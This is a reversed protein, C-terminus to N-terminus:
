VSGEWFSTLHQRVLEYAMYARYEAGARIDSIPRVSERALAAAQEILEPTLRRGRLLEETRTIRLPTPAVSGLSVRVDSIAGSADSCLAVVGSVVSIALANRRGVKFFAQYDWSRKPIRIEAILEGQRLRTQRPGVVFNQLPVLREGERSALLLSTDFAWLANLGDGAPSATQINGGITGKLRTQNCGVRGSAQALAPCHQKILASESLDAFRVAGGVRLEDPSQKVQALRPIRKIDILLEPAIKRSRLEVLIDTGGAYLLPKGCSALHDFLADMSAPAVYDFQAYM